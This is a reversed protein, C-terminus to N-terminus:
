PVGTYEESNESQKNVFVMYQKRNKLYSSMLELATDTVDYYKLKFLLITCTLTDFAKSLDIYLKGPTKGNKMQKSLHDILKIDVYTSQPTNIKWM